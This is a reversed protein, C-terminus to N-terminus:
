TILRFGAHQSHLREEDGDLSGGFEDLVLGPELFMPRLIEIGPEFFADVRWAQGEDFDDGLTQMVFQVLAFQMRVIAGKLYVFRAGAVKAAREKDMFDHLAGLEYDHKPTFDFQPPQGVTKIVVNQEESSGLPVDSLPMNPVSRLLKAYTEDVTTFQAEADALQAKIKKGQEILTPEPKGGKMKDANENRQARLAEAQTLLTRRQEDAQLLVSVDVPYGKQASKEAVLEPNERIFQIDIM